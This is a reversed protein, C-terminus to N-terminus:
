ERSYTALSATFYETVKLTNSRHRTVVRLPSRELKVCPVWTSSSVLIIFLNCKLFFFYIFICKLWTLQCICLYIFLWGVSFQLKYVRSKYFKTLTKPPSIDPHIFPYTELSVTTSRRHSLITSLKTNVVSNFVYILWRFLNFLQRKM